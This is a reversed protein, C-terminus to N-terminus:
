FRDSSRIEEHHILGGMHATRAVFVFSVASLFLLIAWAWRKDAFAKKAQTGYAFLLAVAGTFELLIMSVLASSEHDKILLRSTGPYNKLVNEAPDGSLYTPIAAVAGLVVLWAGAQRLDKSNLLLGSGALLSGIAPVLVPLHNVLLHFQAPNM